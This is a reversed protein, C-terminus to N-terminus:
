FAVGASLMTRRRARRCALDSVNLRSTHVPHPLLFFGLVFVAIDKFRSLLKLPFNERNNLVIKSVLLMIKELKM